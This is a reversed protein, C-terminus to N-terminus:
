SGVTAARPVRSDAVLHELLTSADSVTVRGTNIQLDYLLPDQWDCHYYRRMYERRGDDMRRVESIAIKGDCGLRRCIREVRVAIPAVVRVHLTGPRDHLLHQGGHGVLIVPPSQATERLVDRATQAVADLDLLRETEIAVPMELPAVLLAAALRRMLSPPQEAMGEVVRDELRLREAVRHVLDRDLVPWGLRAAVAHALESGGAGFQRSITIIDVPTRQM